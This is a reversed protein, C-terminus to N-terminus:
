THFFSIADDTSSLEDALAEADSESSRWRDARQTNVTANWDGDGRWVSHIHFGASLFSLYLYVVIDVTAYWRVAVDSFLWEGRCFLVVRLLLLMFLISFWTLAFCFTVMRWVCFLWFGSGQHAYIISRLIIFVTDFFFIWRGDIHSHVQLLM